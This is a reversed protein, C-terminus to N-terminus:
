NATQILSKAFQHQSISPRSSPSISYHSSYTSMRSPNRRSMKLAAETPAHFVGDIVGTERVGL